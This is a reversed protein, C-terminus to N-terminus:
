VVAVMNLHLNRKMASAPGTEKLALLKKSGLDPLKTAPSSEEQERPITLGVIHSGTM